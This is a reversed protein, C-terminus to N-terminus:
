QKPSCNCVRFCFSASICLLNDTTLPEFELNVVIINVCSAGKDVQENNM